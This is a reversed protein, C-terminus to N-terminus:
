GVMYEKLYDLNNETLIHIFVDYESDYMVAVHRPYNPMYAMPSLTAQYAFLSGNVVQILGINHVKAYQKAGSQFGSKSIIIGKHAGCARLIDYVKQVDERKVKSTRNKCEIHTIYSMLGIQHRVEIDIQYEGDPVKKIINHDVSYKGDHTNMTSVFLRVCLQEFETPTIDAVFEEIFDM